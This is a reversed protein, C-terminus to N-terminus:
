ALAPLADINFGGATVTGKFLGDGNAFFQIKINDNSYLGNFVTFVRQGSTGANNQLVLHGDDGMVAFTSSSTEVASGATVSGSFTASGNNDVTAIEASNDANRFQIGAGGGYLYTRTADVQFVNHGGGTIFSNNTPLDISGAFTASGDTTMTVVDQASAGGRGGQIRFAKTTDKTTSLAEVLGPQLYSRNEGLKCMVADSSSILGAATVTGDANLNIKGATTARVVADRLPTPTDAPLTTAVDTYASAQDWTAIVDAYQERIEASLATVVDSILSFFTTSDGIAVDGKFTASGGNGFVIQDAGNSTDIRLNNDVEDVRFNYYISTDSPNICLGGTDAGATSSRPKTAQIDGAANISGNALITSTPTSTGEIYGEWVPLASNKSTAYVRGTTSIFTGEKDGDVGALTGGIAVSGSFTGSGAWDINAATNGAPNTVVFASQNGDAIYNLAVTAGSNSEEAFIYGYQGGVGATSIYGLNSTTGTTIGGAATISGDTADLTIKDTNLTLDGTLDGGALPLYTGGATTSTIYGADNNLESIDDGSALAGVDTADLVVAGTKTNVSKVPSDGAEGLEVWAAGDWFNLTDNNSNFWLDGTGPETPPTPSPEAGAGPEIKIINNANDKFFLAPSESHAGVALEGIQLANADPVKDKVVSNKLKITTSM